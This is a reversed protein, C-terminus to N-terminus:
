AAGGTDLDLIAPRGRDLPWDGTETLRRLGDDGVLYTDECKGGGAVSPNWAVAQGAGVPTAFWRSATQTAVIEFERQRYGVPGGQYHDRWAGPHGAEAYAQAGAVLVDGYTRGPRSAALMATEVAYSLDRARRVSDDLGGACAFRTAATHLGGREAVVVAMALREVPRGAALPHRFQEVREDGGVILCAGFAGVRELREDIRARLEVDLEGPEWGRLGHELAAAAAVSLRGLREREPLDLTLRLEVLDDACAVGFGTARDSAVLAPDHGTLEAAAVDLSDPAFWDAEHLSWGLLDLEAEAALRPREVNTTVVAVDDADVVLRLPGVTAGREVPSTLGGSLWAVSDTGALVVAPLARADLWSRLRVLKAGVEDLRAAPTEGRQIQEDIGFM